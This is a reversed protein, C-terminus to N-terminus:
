AIPYEVFLEEHPVRRERLLTRLLDVDNLAVTMGGGTLPHRMNWADGLVIVGPTRQPSTPLFQNPMSRFQGKAIAARMSPQLQSPLYPVVNKTLHAAMDGNSISPLAGQRLSPEM